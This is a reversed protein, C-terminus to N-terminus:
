EADIRRRLGRGPRFRVVRKGRFMVPHFAGFNLLVVREGAELEEVILEIVAELAQGARAQTLGTEEALRAMVESKHTAEM